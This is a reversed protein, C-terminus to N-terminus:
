PVLVIKGRAAHQEILEHARSAEALPLEPGLEVQLDGAEILNVALPVAEDRWALEQETLPVPSGGSFARIGFDAADPGRVITAIRDRDAVLQLSAQIAEDTGICDLAVTIGDPAAERVREVLGEGYAVPIAGLARLQEFRAPSGTAIVTAGWLAAFQVAAQGVAGSGAHVLLTDGQGVGLSRLCQYATGIPIGLSAGEAMTVGDSLRVLRSVPVSLATSYTGLVNNIAVRDGVAFGTVGDGLAAVVGAGDFGVRRPEVIPPSPRAGRRLKADLPNVGAAEIRVVVEGPAAVPDPIDVLHLVDPTGIETYVIARAM